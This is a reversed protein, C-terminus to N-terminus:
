SFPDPPSAGPGAARHIRRGTVERPTVRVWHAKEGLAWFRLPLAAAGALDDASTLEEARGKVLVSWGTCDDLNLGDAEYCVAGASAVALLKSGPDTRFVVTGRDVVHNVPYVEPAGDVVVGIRGVPHLSLLKWCDAVSLYEMWTPRDLTPM